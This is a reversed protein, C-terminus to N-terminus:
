KKYRLRYMYENVEILDKISSEVITNITNVDIKPNTECSYAKILKRIFESQILRAKNSKEILM